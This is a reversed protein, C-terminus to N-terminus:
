RDLVDHGPAIEAGALLDRPPADDIHEAVATYDGAAV